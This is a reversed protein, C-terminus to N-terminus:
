DISCAEIHTALQDVRLIFQVLSVDYDVDAWLWNELHIPVANAYTHGIRSLGIGIELWKQPRKDLYGLFLHEIRSPRWDVRLIFKICVRRDNATPMSDASSGVREFSHWDQCIRHWNWALGYWDM